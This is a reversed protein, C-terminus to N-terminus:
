GRFVLTKSFLNRCDFLKGIFCFVRQSSVVRRAVVMSYAAAIASLPVAATAPVPVPVPSAPVVQIAVGM